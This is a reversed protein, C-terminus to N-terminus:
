KRLVATFGGDAQDPLHGVLERVRELAGDLSAFEEEQRGADADEYAVQWFPQLPEPQSPDRWWHLEVSTLEDAMTARRAQQMAVQHVHMRAERSSDIYNQRPPM